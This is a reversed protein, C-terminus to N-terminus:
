PSFNSSFLYETISPGDAIYFKRDTFQRMLEGNKREDLFRAYIVDSKLLPHNQPFVSRYGMPGDSRVFVIANEIQMKKVAKLIQANAGWYGDSYVRLLSPINSAFGLCFCAILIIAIYGKVRSKDVIGFLNHVIDPVAAIGRATLLVFAATSSFLVRPGLCWDQHWYTFYALILSSAYGILLLDWTNAKLSVFALFVFILSPIPLEFLFKNLANLNNLTQILGRRPTHPEGWGSHGFGPNHDKGHLVHYGFTLPDGNTLSNFTLLGGFMVGFMALATFCLVTFRFSEKRSTMFLMVLKSIAYILFPIGIAVATLPRMNVVYGLAFGALLADRTRLRKVMRVFGLLFLEFFFLTPTHNMYESSMFVLFPSLAGLLAALRGIRESYIEKGIFYLLVICLSGLLPNIIWPAHLIHGLSLLLTQGPPYQSYWRGNNIMLTFDFLERPEPSPVTLRGLLFIKAHFVQDVSDAVHPIHEFLFYSGLNTATFVLAFLSALLTWAPMGYFWREIKQGLSRLKFILTDVLSSAGVFIMTIGATGLTLYLVIPWGKESPKLTFLLYGLALLLITLRRPQRILSKLCKRASPTILIMGLFLAALSMLFAGASLTFESRFFKVQILMNEGLASQIYKMKYAMGTERAPYTIENPASLALILFGTIILIFRWIYRM